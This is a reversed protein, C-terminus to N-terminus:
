SQHTHLIDDIQQKIITFKDRILEMQKNYKIEYHKNIFYSLFIIIIFIVFVTQFVPFSLSLYIFISVIVALLFFTFYDEINEINYRKKLYDIFSIQSDM